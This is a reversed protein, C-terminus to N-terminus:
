LWKKLNGSRKSNVLNSTLDKSARIKDRSMKAGTEEICSSPSHELEKVRDDGQMNEQIKIKIQPSFMFSTNGKTLQEM